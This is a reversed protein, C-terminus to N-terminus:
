LYEVRDILEVSELLEGVMVLLRILEGLSRHPPSSHVIGAHRAGAAQLRLFDSDHTV